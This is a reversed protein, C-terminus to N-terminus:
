AAENAEKTAQLCLDCLDHHNRGVQCDHSCRPHFVIERPQGQDIMCQPCDAVDPESIPKCFGAGLCRPCQQLDEADDILEKGIMAMHEQLEKEHQEKLLDLCKLAFVGAQWFDAYSLGVRGFPHSHRGKEGVRILLFRNPVDKEWYFGVEASEPNVVQSGMAEALDRAMSICDDFSRKDKAM